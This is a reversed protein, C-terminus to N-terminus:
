ILRGYNIEMDDPKGPFLSCVTQPDDSPDSLGAAADVPPTRM